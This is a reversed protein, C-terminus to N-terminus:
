ASFRMLITALQARSASGTPTLKGGSGSILGENVAWAMADKAWSSVKDADSFSSLGARGSTSCGAYQAYRFLMAALEQRTM